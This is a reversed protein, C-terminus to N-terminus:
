FSSYEGTSGVKRAWFDLFSFRRSRTMAYAVYAWNDWWLAVFYEHSPEIGAPLEVKGNEM